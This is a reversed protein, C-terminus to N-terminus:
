PPTTLVLPLSNNSRNRTTEPELTAYLLEPTHRGRREGRSERSKNRIMNKQHYTQFIAHITIGTDQKLTNLFKITICATCCCTEKSSESTLITFSMMMSGQQKAESASFQNIELIWNPPNTGFIFRFHFSFIFHFLLVLISQYENEQYCQDRNKYPIIQEDM